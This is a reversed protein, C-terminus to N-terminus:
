IGRVRHQLAKCLPVCVATYIIMLIVGILIRMPILALLVEMTMYKYIVVGDFYSAIWNFAIFVFMAIVISVMIPVFQTRRKFIKYVLGALLGCLTGPILWFPTSQTWGFTLLQSLLTGLLGTALGEVPGCILGVVIFPLTAFTIKFDNGIRVTLFLELVIHLAIMVGCIALNIVAMKKM